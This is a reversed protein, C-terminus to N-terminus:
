PVICYEKLWIGMSGQESAGQDTNDGKGQVHLQAAEIAAKERATSGNVNEMMLAMLFEERTPFDPVEFYQLMARRFLSTPFDFYESMSGDNRGVCNALDSGIGEAIKSDNQTLYYLAKGAVKGSTRVAQLIAPLDERSEMRQNARGTILVEDYILGRAKQPWSWQNVNITNVLFDVNLAQDSVLLEFHGKRDQYEYTPDRDLARKLAHLCDDRDWKDACLLIKRSASKLISDWNKETGNM